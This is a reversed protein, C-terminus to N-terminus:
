SQPVAHTSGPSDTLIRYRLSGGAVRRHASHVRRPVGIAGAAGLLGIHVVVTVGVGGGLGPVGVGGGFRDISAIDISM